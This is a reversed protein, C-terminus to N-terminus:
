EAGGTKEYFSLLRSINSKLSLKDRAQLVSQLVHEYPQEEIRKRIQQLDGMNIGIGASYREVLWSQYGLDKSVIVPIGAEMYNFLKLTTAYKLKDDSQESLERFFPLIGFHYQSLEKALEHQAVPEHFHFYAHNRALSEYEEYDARVNSPSPYIHFHIKQAVFIEILRQFQINGYQKPNRHSGAVGGAYAIHINDKDIIKNTNQFFDDDCYLPFFLTPPKQRTKFKRYAVNPELSHGVVGNAQELCSKEHPLEKQLWGLTPNLGYYITYVDQMDHIFPAKNMKRVIDPFFSKPAFSHFLYIDPVARVIRQLHWKNRFLFIKGFAPDSFKHIYGKKSCLLICEYGGSRKVWKAIRATRPPLQEGIFVVRKIGSAKPPITVAPVHLTWLLYDSLSTIKEFILWRIKSLVIRNAASLIQM